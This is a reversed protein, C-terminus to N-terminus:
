PMRPETEVKTGIPPVRLLRYQVRIACEVGSTVSVTVRSGAGLRIPPSPDDVLVATTGAVESCLNGVAVATDWTNLATVATTADLSEASIREIEWIEGPPIPRFALSGGSTQGTLPGRFEWPIPQPKSSLKVIEALEAIARTIEEAYLFATAEGGLSPDIPAPHPHTLPIPGSAFGPQAGAVDAPEGEGSDDVIQPPPLTSPPAGFGGAFAGDFNTETM